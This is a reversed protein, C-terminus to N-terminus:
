KGGGSKLSNGQPLSRTGTIKGLIQKATDAIDKIDKSTGAILGSAQGAWTDKNGTGIVDFKDQNGIGRSLVGGPLSNPDSFQKIYEDLRDPAIGPLLSKFAFYGMQTDTGGFMQTVRQIVAQMIKGENEPNRIARDILDMRGATEPMIDQVTGFILARMRENMPNQSMNQFQEMDSGIRSDQTIGQVGSFAAIMRNANTFDPRDTRGMYSAMLGQQADYKEQVRTFDDMSVGSGEIENLITVLRSIADTVNQGYRDYQSGRTLSGESLALSRELGIGRMTEAYWDNASGRAKIRQAAQAAFDKESLNFDTYRRGGYHMEPLVQGMALRGERGSLGGITSRLATLEGLSNSTDAAGTVGKAAGAVVGAWGLFRLAAKMGMGSLGAVAGAGGMISGSIDGEQLSSFLNTLGQSGQLVSDYYPRGQQQAGGSLVNRLQENVEGLRRAASAADEESAASDRERILARQQERLRGIYSDPNEGGSSSQRSFHDTLEKIADTLEREAQARENKEDQDIQEEEADYKTGVKRYMSEREQHLQQELVSQYFPDQANPGLRQLGATRRRGIEAEIEDYDAGMRSRMNERRSNYRQAIDDEIRARETRQIAEIAERTSTTRQAEIERRVDEILRDSPPLPSPRSSGTGTPNNAVGDLESRLQSANGRINVTVDAM